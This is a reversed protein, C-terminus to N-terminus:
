KSEKEFYEGTRPGASGKQSTWILVLITLFYPLMQFYQYPADTISVQLRLQFADMLGFLLSAFLVGVPSWRGFALAALAIFGKGSSMGEVFTNVNGISLAVGGVAAFVSSLITGIYRTKVVKIGVSDSTRSNEGCSRFNLGSITHYFYLHMLPVILIAIYVLANHDFFVEGVFPIGSLLPIPINNFGTVSVTNSTTAFVARFVYATIGTSFINMGAGVVAQPAGLTLAFFDFILGWIMGVIIGLLLGAWPNGTIYSGVVGALAGALMSGELSINLVGSRSAFVGGLAALLIPCALRIAQPLFSILYEYM